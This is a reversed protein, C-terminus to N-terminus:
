SRSFVSLYGDFCHSNPISVYVVSRYPLVNLAIVKGDPLPFWFDFNRGFIGTKHLQLALVGLYQQALNLQNQAWKPRPDLGRNANHAALLEQLVQSSFKLFIEESQFWYSFDATQLLLEIVISTRFEDPQDFDMDGDDLLDPSASCVSISDRSSYQDISEGSLDISRRIGLLPMEGTAHHKAEIEIALGQAASDNMNEPDEEKEEEINFVATSSTSTRRNQVSSRRRTM